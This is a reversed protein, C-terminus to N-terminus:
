SNELFELKSLPIIVFPTKGKKETVAVCEEQLICSDDEIMGYTPGNYEYVITGEALSLYDELLKFKM